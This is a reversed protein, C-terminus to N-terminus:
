SERQTMVNQVEASARAHLHRHMRFRKLIFKHLTFTVDLPSPPPMKGM